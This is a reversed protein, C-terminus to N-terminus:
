DLFIDPRLEERTIMGETAKEIRRALVGSPKRYGYAIQKLYDPTTGSRRAVGNFRGSKYKKKFELLDM